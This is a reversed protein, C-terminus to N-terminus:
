NSLSPLFRLPHPPKLAEGIQASGDTKSSPDVNRPSSRLLELRLTPCGCPRWCSLLAAVQSLAQWSQARVIITAALDYSSPSSFPHLTRQYSIEHTSPLSM